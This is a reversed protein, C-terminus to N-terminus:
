KQEKLMADIKLINKRCAKRFGNAWDDDTTECQIEEHIDERLQELAERRGEMRAQAHLRELTQRAADVPMTDERTSTDRVSGLFEAKQILDDLADSFTADAVPAVALAATLVDRSENTFEVWQETGDGAILTKDADPYGWHINCLKRAGAEVMEDTIIMRESDERTRDSRVGVPVLAIGIGTM